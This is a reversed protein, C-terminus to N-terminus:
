LLVAHCSLFNTWQNTKRNNKKINLEFAYFLFTNVIFTSKTRFANIAILSFFIKYFRQQEGSTIFFFIRPWDIFCQWTSKVIIVCGAVFTFYIKQKTKYNLCWKALAVSKKVSRLLTHILYRYSQISAIM